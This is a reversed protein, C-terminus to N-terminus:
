QHRRPIREPFSEVILASRKVEIHHSKGGPILAAAYMVQSIPRLDLDEDGQVQREWFEVVADVMPGLDEDADACAVGLCAGFERFALRRAAGRRMLESDEDLLVRALRLGEARLEAAWREDAVFQCIWLGMGLDLADGSPALLGHHMLHAYDAVEAALVDRGPAARRLLTCVVYGTAADLHGQSAVLVRQMDTSVKWVMCLEGSARRLVFRPHVAQALQVALANYLPEGAALSLRNLAFMWLTLYHHYQGDGDAGSASAKGIRLGGRLPEADTAGPLRASGDRTSGLVAHVATVLRKALLLYRPSSTERFLTLFNVVGFADTWLYRGRHGGAGPSDPPIWATAEDDSLNDFPGYVVAMAERFRRLRDDREM